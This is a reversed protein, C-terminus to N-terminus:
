LKRSYARRFVLSENRSCWFVVSSRRTCSSIWSPSWLKRKSFTLPMVHSKQHSEIPLYPPDMEFRTLGRTDSTSSDWRAASGRRIMWNLVTTYNYQCLWLSLRDDTLEILQILQHHFTLLCYTRGQNARNWCKIKCQRQLSLFSPIMSANNALLIGPLDKSQLETDM